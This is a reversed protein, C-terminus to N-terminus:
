KWTPVWITAGTSDLMKLWGNQNATAPQGTGGTSSAVFAPTGSGGGTAITALTTKLQNVALIASDANARTKVACTSDTSVDFNIGATGAFNTIQFQADAPSLFGSRSAVFFSGGGGSTAFQSGTITSGVVLQGTGAGFARNFIKFIGDTQVDIGVGATGAANTIDFQGTTSSTGNLLAKSVGGNTISFINASSTGTITLSPMQLVGDVIVWSIGGAM